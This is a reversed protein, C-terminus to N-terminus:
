HGGGGGGGNGGHGEEAKAAEKKADDSRQDVSAAEVASQVQASLQAPTLTQLFTLTPTTDAPCSDIAEIALDFQPDEVVACTFFDRAKKWNGGDLTDLGQGYCIFAKLNKTHYRDLADKEAPTPSLKLTKVIQSVIEKELAFFKVMEGEVGFSGVVDKKLTSAISTSVRLLPATSAMTGAVLHEVGALRGFRPATKEDVLGSQGLKMEDILAQIRLREVVQLAKIASLDTMIMAALGKQISRLSVDPPLDVFPTVALAGPMAKVTQLKKEEVLAKKALERGELMELLTLQRKIERSVIPQEPNRYGRWVTMAATRDGTKLLAMGLHLSAQPDGPVQELVKRFTGIAKDTDGKALYAVGLRGRAEHAGPNKILYEQFDAIAADYNKRALEAEAKVNLVQACGALMMGIILMGTTILLNCKRKM